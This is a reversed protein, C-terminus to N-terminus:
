NFFLSSHERLRRFMRNKANDISKPTRALEEAMQSTTYGKLYLRFVELELKSLFTAALSVYRRVSEVLLLRSEAGGSAVLGQEDLPETVSEDLRLKSLLDYLARSICIRAYLGFTVGERSIDYSLSARHLVVIAESWAVDFQSQSFDLDSIVSKMMPTYRRVLEAFAADDSARIMVILSSIELESLREM